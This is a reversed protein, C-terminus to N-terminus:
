QQHWGQDMSISLGILANFGSSALFLATHAVNQVTTFEDDISEKLRVNKISEAYSINLEKAQKPIQKDM